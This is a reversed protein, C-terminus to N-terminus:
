KKYNIINLIEILESHLRENAAVVADGLKWPEGKHNTVKCGAEEMLLVAPALDWIKTNFGISWDRKGEAICMSNFGACGFANIGIKVNSKQAKRLLAKRLMITENKPLFSMLGRSQSIKKTSSCNIKQSNIFAGKNKRAFALKDHVPDFIASAEVIGNKIFAVMIVFIPIGTAFNATGDIPDITWINEAEEKYGVAEESIIGHEPYKKKIENEILENIKIDTETVIDLIDEKVYVTHSKSFEKLAIRGADRVLKKMFEDM